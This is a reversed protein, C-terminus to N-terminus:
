HVCPNLFYHCEISQRRHTCGLDCNFDCALHVLVGPDNRQWQLPPNVPLPVAQTFMLSHTSMVIQAGCGLQESM